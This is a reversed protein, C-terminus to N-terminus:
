DGGGGGGGGGGGSDGGGSFGGGSFGGGSDGGGYDGSDGYDGGSGWHNHSSSHHKRKGSGSHGHGHSGRSPAPKSVACGMTQSSGFTNFLHSLPSKHVTNAEIHRSSTRGQVLFVQSQRQSRRSIAPSIHSSVTNQSTPLLHNSGRKYPHHLSQAARARPQALHQRLLVRASRSAVVAEECALTPTM